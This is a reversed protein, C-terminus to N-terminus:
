EAEPYHLRAGAEKRPINMNRKFELLDEAAIRLEEPDETADEKLWSQVLAISAAAKPDVLIARAGPKKDLNRVGLDDASRLAHESKGDANSTRGLLRVLAYENIEMGSSDAEKRVQLEEEPKLNLVLEM